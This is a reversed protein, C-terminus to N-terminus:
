SPLIQKNLKGAQTCCAAKESEGNEEEKLTGSEPSHADALVKFLVRIEPVVPSIGFAVITLAAGGPFRMVTVLTHTQCCPRKSYWIYTAFTFTIQEYRTGMCTHVNNGPQLMTAIDLQSQM